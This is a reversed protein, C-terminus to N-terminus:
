FAAPGALPGPEASPGGCCSSTRKGKGVQCDPLLPVQKAQNGAGCFVAKMVKWHAGAAWASAWFDIAM